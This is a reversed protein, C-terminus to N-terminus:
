APAGNRTAAQKVAGRAAADELTSTNLAVAVVQAPRPAPRSGSTSTSTLGLAGSLSREGPKAAALEATVVSDADVAQPLETSRWSNTRVDALGQERNSSEGRWCISTRVALLYEDTSRSLLTTIAFGDTTTCTPCSGGSSGPNSPPVPALPSSSNTREIPSASTRRSFLSPRKVTVRSGPRNESSIRLPVSVTSAKMANCASAAEGEACPYVNPKGGSDCLLLRNASM